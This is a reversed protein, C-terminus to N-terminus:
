DIFIIEKFIRGRLFKTYLIDEMAKYYIGEAENDRYKKASHIPYIYLTDTANESIRTKLMERLTIIEDPLEFIRKVEEYLDIQKM